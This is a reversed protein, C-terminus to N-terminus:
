IHRECIDRSKSRLREKRVEEYVEVYDKKGDIM